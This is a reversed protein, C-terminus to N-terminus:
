REEKGEGERLGEGLANVAKIVGERSLEGATIWKAGRKLFTFFRFINESLPQQTEDFVFVNVLANEEYLHTHFGVSAPRKVSFNGGQREQFRYVFIHLYRPQDKGPISVIGREILSDGFETALTAEASEHISGAVIPRHCYPCEIAHPNDLREVYLGIAEVPASMGAIVFLAACLTFTLRM